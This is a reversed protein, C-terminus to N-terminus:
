STPALPATELLAGQRLLEHRVAGAEPADGRAVLAAAIGAAHGTAFATGMVRVSSFAHADADLTRGAAFLNTAGLSQLTRLPIQYAGDDRLRIWLNPAGPAGHFEVPWGGLAVADDFTANEIVDTRTLQYHAAIHRSERTGIAPGTSVLYAGECGPLARIVELYAWAQERGSQEAATTSAADRADYAEDILFAIVDNSIPLRTVLGNEKTLLKGRSKAAGIAEAWLARDVNAEASIGGVRMALTGNQVNGGTGYRTRVGALFALDAEGSADVFASARVEHMGAHDWFRVSELRDGHLTAEIVTAHLLTDPGGCMRDLVLKTAEPDIVAVVVGTHGMRVPGIMGGLAALGHLVREGVGGVVAAPPDNQTWFGCYTLVSSWTAAGGLFPAREILLTRAGAERAGLAAGVGAAGGGVVVVDYTM